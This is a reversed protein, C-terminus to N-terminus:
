KLKNKLESYKLKGVFNEIKPLNEEVVVKKGDVNIETKAKLARTEEFILNSQLVVDDNQIKMMFPENAAYYYNLTDEKVLFLVYEDGLDPEIFLPDITEYTHIDPEKADEERLDVENKEKYRHNVLINSTETTGKLVETIEFNYLKGGVYINPDEELINEQNRAMNWEHDFSIYKGRVIVEAKDQMNDLSDAVLLDREVKAVVSDNEKKLENLYFYGTVLGCIIFGVFILKMSKKM